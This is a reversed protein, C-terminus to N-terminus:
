ASSLRLALGSAIARTQVLLNSVLSAAARRIQVAHLAWRRRWTMSVSFSRAYRWMHCLKRHSRLGTSMSLWSSSSPQGGYMSAVDGLTLFRWIRLGRCASGRVFLAIVVDNPGGCLCALWALIWLLLSLHTTCSAAALVM